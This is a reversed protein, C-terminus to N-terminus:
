AGSFGIGQGQRLLRQPRNVVGCALAYAGKRLNIGRLRLLLRLLGAGAPSLLVGATRYVPQRDADLIM